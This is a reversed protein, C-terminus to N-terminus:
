ATPRGLPPSTDVTAVILGILVLVATTFLLIHGFLSLSCAVTSLRHQEAPRSCYSSPQIMPQDLDPRLREVSGGKGNSIWTWLTHRVHYLELGRVTM